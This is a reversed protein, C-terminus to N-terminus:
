IVKEPLLSLDTELEKQQKKDNEQLITIKKMKKKSKKKLGEYNTEYIQYFERTFINKLFEYIRYLEDDECKGVILVSGTRFIM